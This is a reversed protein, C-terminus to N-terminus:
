RARDLLLRPREQYKRGGYTVPDPALVWRCADKLTPGCCYAVAL